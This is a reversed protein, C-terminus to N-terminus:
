FLFDVYAAVEKKSAQVTYETNYMTQVGGRAVGMAADSVIFM